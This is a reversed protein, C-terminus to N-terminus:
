VPSDNEVMFWIENEQRNNYAIQAVVASESRGDTVRHGSASRLGTTRHTSEGRARQLSPRRPQGAAAGARLEM